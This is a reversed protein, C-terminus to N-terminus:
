RGLRRRCRILTPDTWGAVIGCAGCEIGSDRVSAVALAAGPRVETDADGLAKLAPTAEPAAV